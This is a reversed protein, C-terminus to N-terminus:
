RIFDALTTQMINGGAKLAMQYVYNAENLHMTAKLFDVDENDSMLTNYSLNDQELRSQILELRNTQSGLKTYEKSAQFFHKDIIGLMNSFADHLVGNYLQKEETLRDNVAKELEDGTLNNFQKRLQEKPTLSISDVLQLMARLDGFLAATLCDKAQNNITVRTNVGFEYQIDQGSADYYKFPPATEDWCNFYIEPNLDGKKLGEKFYSMRISGDANANILDVANKGLIIEGTDKIYYVDNDDPNYAKIDDNASNLFNLSFAGTNINGAFNYISNGASDLIEFNRLGAGTYPLKLKSVETVTIDLSGPGKKYAKCTEINGPSLTQFITYKADPIDATIIPPKDTRYGSFVYRGTYTVNMENGMQELLSRMQTSFTQKNDINYNDSAGEICLEKIDTLASEVLNKLAQETISMWSIGQQVNRIYQQTDSVNTRFKLARSAVIPNDSPMQIKKGTTLQTYLNNVTNTNRTINLIVKNMTMQNTIRM